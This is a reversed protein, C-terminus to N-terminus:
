HWQLLIVSWVWDWIYVRRTIWPTVTSFQQYPEEM